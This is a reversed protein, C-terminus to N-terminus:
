GGSGKKTKMKHKEGDKGVGGCNMKGMKETWGQGPAALGETEQDRWENEPDSARPQPLARCIKISTKLHHSQLGSM